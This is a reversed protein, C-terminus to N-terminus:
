ALTVIEAAGAANLRNILAVRIEIKAAQSDPHRAAIRAGFVRLCRLDPKPRPPRDLAKQRPCLTIHDPVAWGLERIKLLSVVIGITQRLPLKFLVKITLCFQIAADSFM